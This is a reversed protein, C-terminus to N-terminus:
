ISMKVYFNVTAHIKKFIQFLSRCVPTIIKFLEEELYIFGFYGGTKNVSLDSEM